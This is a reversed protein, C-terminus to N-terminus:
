RTAPRELASRGAPPVFPWITHHAPPFYFVSELHSYLVAPHRFPLIIRHPRSSIRTASSSTPLITPPRSGPWDPMIRAIPLRSTTGGENMMMNVYGGGSSYPHPATWYDKAWLIMRENDAPDPDVGVTVEAFHADRVSFATDHRGGRHAAGNIPYLHMTSLMTPLQAGYTVHRDIAADSLEAFFDAKCLEPEAFGGAHISAERPRCLWRAVAWRGSRNGNEIPADGRLPVIARLVQAARV